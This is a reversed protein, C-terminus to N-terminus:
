EELEERAKMADLVAHDGEMGGLPLALRESITSAAKDLLRVMRQALSPEPEQAASDNDTTASRDPKDPNSSSSPGIESSFESARVFDELSESKLRAGMREADALRLYEDVIKTVSLVADEAFPDRENGKACSELYMGAAYVLREVAAKVEPEAIRLLALRKRAQAVDALIAADREKRERDEEALIAKAGAESRLTLLLEVGSIVLFLPVVVLWPLFGAAGAAAGLVANASVLGVALPSRIFKVLFDKMQLVQFITGNGHYRSLGYSKFCAGSQITKFQITRFGRNQNQM